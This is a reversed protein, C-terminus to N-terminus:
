TRAASTSSSSPLLTQLLAPPELALLHVTAEPACRAAECALAQGDEGRGVLLFVGAGSGTVHVPAALAKRLRNLLVGLAPTVVVAASELDNFLLSSFESADLPESAQRVRELLGECDRPVPPLGDFARYVLPTACHLPPLVLVLAGRLRLHVPEVREGRGSILCPSGHLFLPVDSGLSAAVDALATLTMGLQWVDNLARLAAAANSSGGGLGAGAPIRKLLRMDAGRWAGSAARLALAARWVLNSADAPISPDDVELTITDDQRQSVQLRDALGIPLVLSELDHYGDARLPYVRLTLNIKAPARRELM